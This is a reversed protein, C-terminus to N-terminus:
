TLGVSFLFLVASGLSSCAKQEGKLHAAVNLSWDLLRGPKWTSTHWTVWNPAAKQSGVSCNHCEREQIGLGTAASVRSSMAPRSRLSTLHLVSTVPSGKARCGMLSPSLQSGPSSGIGRESLEQFLRQGWGQQLGRCQTKSWLTLHMKEALVRKSCSCKLM